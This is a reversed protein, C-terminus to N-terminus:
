EGGIIGMLWTRWQLVLIALMYKLQLETSGRHRVYEDLFCEHLKGPTVGRYESEFAPSQYPYAGRLPVCRRLRAHIAWAIALLSATYFCASSVVRDQGDDKAHAAADKVIAVLRSADDSWATQNEECSGLLVVGLYEALTTYTIMQRYFQPAHIRLGCGPAAGFRVEMRYGYAVPMVGM